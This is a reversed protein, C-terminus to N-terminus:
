NGASGFIGRPDSWGVSLRRTVKYKGSNTDFDNDNDMSAEKRNFFKLGDPCDTILFWADTDTTYPTVVVEPIMGMEKLANADNDATAVRLPSKLIRTANFQDNLNVVLKTPRVFIRLGRDDVLNGIDITAQELAGESLDADVALKNSFTAVSGGGRIPHATSCLAVGDGNTMLGAGSGTFARNLVQHALIEDTQISARKLSRAMREAVNLAIGDDILNQSIQFGLAMEIHDYRPVYGQKGAAYRVPGAEDKQQLLPLGSLLADEVYARNDSLVQFIRSYIPTYDKYEDGFWKKIGPRLDEPFLGRVMITM